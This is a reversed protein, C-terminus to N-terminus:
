QVNSVQLGDPFTTQTTQADAFYYVVKGDPFTQKIDQNAFFVLIYGDPFTERKVGNSFVVEKKGNQYLRQIKGDNGVVEDIITVNSSSQDHYKSPYKMTYDEEEGEDDEEQEIHQEEEEEEKKDEEYSEDEQPENAYRDPNYAENSEAGKKLIGKIQKDGSKSARLELM